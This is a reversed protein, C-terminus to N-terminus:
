ATDRVILHPEFRRARAPGRYGGLRSLLLQAAEHGMQEVPQHLTTLGRAAAWPQDDFGIVRVDEGPTLGRGRAEDLLAGALLDASAFVTCPLQAEDLLATAVNRAALADFSATFEARLTRGSGQLAARFGARREEFVRTTFLQDLETEVWIAYLEGPLTAAYEGALRGGTVNDMFACDVGEAYADVLVTPQQNRLRRENFLQTLNYTVMVLGDAQYALTHSGLYRELRSRDLLPFIAVDYRAEQFASELGDLLRVYFETTVVPLLVSITYSKGGAIRRAHPNPTYDLEAIAQLVLERTAGKVAAHNNLVRSVTGVGVGARRAVDQITPKRM